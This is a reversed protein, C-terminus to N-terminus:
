VYCPTSGVRGVGLLRGGVLQKQKYVIFQLVRFFFFIDTNGQDCILEMVASTGCLDFKIHHHTIQIKHACVSVCGCM